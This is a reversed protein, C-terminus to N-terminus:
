ERRLLLRDLHNSFEAIQKQNFKAPGGSILGSDRLHTSINRMALHKKINNATYLEGRPNLAIGQKTVVADALPIDATIVLDGPQLLSLIKNDAADFGAMVLLTSIYPSPPHSLPQNAVLIVPTQTRNAARYLIEKIIKSCADADVWIRM